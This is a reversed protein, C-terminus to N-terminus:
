LSTVVTEPCVMVVKSGIRSRIKDKWVRTGRVVGPRSGLALFLMYAVTVGFAARGRSIFVRSPVTPSEKGLEQFCPM